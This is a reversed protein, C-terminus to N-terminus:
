DRPPGTAAQMEKMMEAANVDSWGHGKGPGYAIRGEYPPDAHSLFQDLLHVANNLFYNDADGVAIHLKGRLKPSLTQWNHELVLRLDYPRWQEAVPHNIRGTQPDWLPVPLGDVGRPGYTANWACWQGGSTTWSNGRGMVNELQVERRMTLKVDGGETRESPREFGFQNVYANDDMYINVLEYARFDVGDPCSSWTGNFFDPYFVQLALSTWGGTSVGSLVRAKPEGIAHFKQEIYPILEQTIADGYPGNNASNVQYADGFPGAGDLLLLIMRPTDAALWTKRFGGGERMLGLVASYRTNFGGIRVWLPYKRSADARYDRPLIVGARLYIPRGHFQSLLRSQIRVFKILETEAPLQEPGIQASLELKVTGGRAPDLHLKRVNSYLNGPASPSLVDRNCRLLAQVFYDGAPLEALKAMPFTLVSGDLVLAKGPVFDDADRGLVVPADPGTGGIALRPEREGQRALAVMLRGTQPTAVLNEKLTVEFNLSGPGDTSPEAALDSAGAVCLITVAVLQKIWRKM